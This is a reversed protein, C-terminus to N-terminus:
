LSVLSGPSVITRPFYWGNANRLRKEMVLVTIGKEKM